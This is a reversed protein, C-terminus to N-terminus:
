PRPVGMGARHRSSLLHRRLWPWVGAAVPSHHLCKQLGGPIGPVTQLRMYEGKIGLTVRPPLHVRIMLPKGLVGCSSLSWWCTSGPLKKRGAWLGGQQRSDFPLHWSGMVRRSNTGRLMAYTRHRTSGWPVLFSDTFQWRGVWQLTM